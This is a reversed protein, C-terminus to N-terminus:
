TDFSPCLPTQPLLASPFPGNVTFPYPFFSGSWYATKSCIVNGVWGREPEIVSGGSIDLQIDLHPCSVSPICTLTWSNVPSVGALSLIAGCTLLPKVGYLMKMNYKLDTIVRSTSSVLLYQWWDKSMRSLPGDGTGSM